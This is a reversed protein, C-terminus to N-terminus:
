PGEVGDADADGITACFPVIFKDIQDKYPQGDSIFIVATQRCYLDIPSPDVTDGALSGWLPLTGFGDAGALYRGIDTLVAGLPTCGTSPSLTTQVANIIATESNPGIPVM